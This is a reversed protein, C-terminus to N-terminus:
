SHIYERLLLHLPLGGKSWNWRWLWFSPLIPYIVRYVLLYLSLSLSMLLNVCELKLVFYAAKHYLNSFLIKQQFFFHFFANCVRNVEVWLKAPSLICHLHVSSHINGEGSGTNEVTLMEAKCVLRFCGERAQAPLVCSFLFASSPCPCSLPCPSASTKAGLLLLVKAM